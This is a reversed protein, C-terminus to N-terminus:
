QIHKHTLTHNKYITSMLREDGRSGLHVLAVQNLAEDSILPMLQAVDGACLRLWSLSRIADNLM